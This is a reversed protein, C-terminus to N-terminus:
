GSFSGAEPQLYAAFHASAEKYFIRQRFIPTLGLLFYYPFLQPFFYLLGLM